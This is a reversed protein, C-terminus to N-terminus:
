PLAQVTYMSEGGFALVFTDIFLRYESRILVPINLIFSTVSAPDIEVPDNTELPPIAQALFNHHPVSETTGLAVTSEIDQDLTPGHKLTATEVTLFVEDVADVVIPNAPILLKWLGAIDAVM